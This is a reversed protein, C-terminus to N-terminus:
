NPRGLLWTADVELDATLRELLEPTVPISGNLIAEAKFRPVKILKSFAVVREDFAEPVDMEDLTENLRESFLRNGM